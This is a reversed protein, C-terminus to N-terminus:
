KKKSVDRYTGGCGLMRNCYIDTIGPGSTNWRRLTIYRSKPKPYKLCLEDYKATASALDTYFYSYMKINDGEHLRESDVICNVEYLVRKGIKARAEKNPIKMIDRRM